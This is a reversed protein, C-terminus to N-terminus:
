RALLRARDAATMKEAAYRLVIRTTELRRPLLFRMVAAPRNPYTEKLLWGVGKRVMDDADGLLAAAVELIAPTNRGSHAEQILSVAAARRKWRNKSRTWPLLNPILSPDNELCAAVLWTGVGDTHAWNRVWRDIWREFLRFEGAGCQKGFRRYLYIVVAGEELKGGRWLEECLRNRDAPPWPKVQRYLQAALERCHPSRVGYTAVEHQFFRRQGERFAPDVRAALEARVQEVLEDM